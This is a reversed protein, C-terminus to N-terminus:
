VNEYQVKQGDACSSYGLLARFPKPQRLLPNWLGAIVTGGMRDYFFLMTDGYARQLDDVFDRAPDYDLMVEETVGTQLNIPRMKGTWVSEDAFANQSYRPLVNPDLHIIFDYDTLPHNFLAKVGLDNPEAEKAIHTWSAKALTKVRDAIMPTPGRGEMCWFVGTLEEETAIHWAGASMGPDVARREKFASNVAEVKESPFHLTITPDVGAISHVPVILPECKWDWESLFAMTRAFGAPGTNPKSQSDSTLFVHACVLEILETSIFPALLHSSFWRKILRVTPSFGVHRFHVNSISSHHAPAHLFRQLHVTLGKEAEAKQFPLSAKDNIVDELLKRERDHYIRLRFAFGSPLAVELSAGDETPSALHDLAIYVKSGDNAALINQAIM